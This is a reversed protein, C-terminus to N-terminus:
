PIWWANEVLISATKINIRKLDGPWSFVDVNENVTLHLSQNVNNITKIEYTVIDDTRTNDFRSEPRGHAPFKQLIDGERLADLQHITSIKVPMNKTKTSM